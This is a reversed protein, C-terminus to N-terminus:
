KAYVLKCGQLSSKGTLDTFRVSFFYIGSAVLQESQNKGDWSLTHQGKPLQGNVVHKILQGHSNFIVAHVKAVTPTVIRIITNNNFPNPYNQSVHYDDPLSIKAQNSSLMTDAVIWVPDNIDSDATSGLIGHNSYVSLDGTFQGDGENLRWYGVLGSDATFYYNQNLTDNMTKQIQSQSRAINWVRVEDIKGNFSRGPWQPSDGILLPQDVANGINFSASGSKAKEEGNIYIRMHNGDYTASVHYLLYQMLTNQPTNLENWGNSGINFNVIGNSGIRIMYGADHAAADNEDKTIVCGQYVEDKFENVKVLAELTLQKGSIQLSTDNGCNVYDDSGDFQLSYDGSGAVPNSIMLILDDADQMSPDSDVDRAKLIVEGESACKFWVNAAGHTIEILLPNSWNSQDTSFLGDDKSASIEVIQDTKLITYGSPDVLDLMLNIITETPFMSEGPGALVIKEPVWASIDGWGALSSSVRWYGFNGDSGKPRINEIWYSLNHLGGNMKDSVDLVVPYVKDGPCWGSRSYWYTGGGANQKAFNECDSRWPKYRHIELDDIAIVNDKSEFEDAGRGDTCHGSVYYTLMVREPNPPINIPYVPKGEDIQARTMGSNFMIGYNWTAPQISDTEIFSLSFDFIWGNQVWTDVFANITIEGTLLPALYTVDKELISHGGYGTIFKLLEIEEMGPVDIYITGARDWPDGDTDIDLNAIIQVPKSFSPLKLNKSLIRGNDLENYFESNNQAEGGFHIYNNKFVDIKTTDASLVSISCISFLIGCVIEKMWNGEGL